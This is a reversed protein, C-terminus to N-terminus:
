RFYPIADELVGPTIWSRYGHEFVPVSGAKSRKVTQQPTEGHVFGYLHYGHIGMGTGIMLGAIAEDYPGPIPTRMLTVGSRILKTAFFQSPYKSELYPIAIDLIM